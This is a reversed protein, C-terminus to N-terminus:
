ASQQRHKAPVGRSLDPLVEVGCAMAGRVVGEVLAVAVAGAGPSGEAEGHYSVGHWALVPCFWM